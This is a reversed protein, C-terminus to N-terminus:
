GELIRITVKIGDEPYEQHETLETLLQAFKLVKIKSATKLKKRVWGINGNIYSEVIEEVTDM